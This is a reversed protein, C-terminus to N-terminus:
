CVGLIGTGMYHDVVGGYEGCNNRISNGVRELILHYNTWWKETIVCVIWGVFMCVVMCDYLWLFM